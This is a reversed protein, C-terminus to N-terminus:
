LGLRVAPTTPRERRREWASQAKIVAVQGPFFSPGEPDGIGSPGISDSGGEGAQKILGVAGDGIDAM